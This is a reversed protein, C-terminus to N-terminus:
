RQEIITLPDDVILIYLIYLYTIVFYASKFVKELTASQKSARSKPKFKRKCM